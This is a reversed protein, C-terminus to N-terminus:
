HRDATKHCGGEGHECHCRGRGRLGRASGTPGVHGRRVRDHVAHQRQGVDARIVVQDVEPGAVPAQGDGRDGLALRATGGADLDVGAQDCLRGLLRLIGADGIAHPEDRAVQEVRVDPLGRDDRQVKERVDEALDLRLQVPLQLRSRAHNGM